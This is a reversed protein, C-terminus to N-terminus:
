VMALGLTWSDVRNRCDQARFRGKQLPLAPGLTVCVSNGLVGKAGWPRYSITAGRLGFAGTAYGYPFFARTM